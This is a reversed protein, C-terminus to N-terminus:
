FLYRTIIFKLRNKKVRIAAETANRDQLWSSSSPMALRVTVGPSSVKSWDSPVESTSSRAVRSQSIALWGSQTATLTVPPWADELGCFTLTLTM